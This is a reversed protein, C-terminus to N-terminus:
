TSTADYLVQAHNKGAGPPRSGGPVHRDERFAPAIKLFHRIVEPNSGLGSKDLLVRLAPSTTAEMAQKAIALNEDFKDGGIEADAKAQQAWETQVRTIEAKMASQSAEASAKAQQAIVDAVKQAREQSLGLDKALGKFADLAAADLTVGDPVTFDAYAEPAAAPTTKGDGAAASDSTGEGAAGPQQTTNGADPPATEGGTQAAVTPAAETTSAGASMDESM